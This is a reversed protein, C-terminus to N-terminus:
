MLMEDCWHASKDKNQSFHNEKNGGRKMCSLGREGYRANWLKSKRLLILEGAM